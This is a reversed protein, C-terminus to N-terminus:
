EEQAKEWIYDTFAAALSVLPRPSMTRGVIAKSDYSKDSNRKITIFGITFIILLVMM